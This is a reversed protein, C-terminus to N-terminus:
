QKWVDTLLKIYEIPSRMQARHWLLPEPTIFRKPAPFLSPVKSSKADLFWNYFEGWYSPLTIPEDM